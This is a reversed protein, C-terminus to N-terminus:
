NNTAYVLGNWLVTVQQQPNFQKIKEEAKRILENRLTENKYLLMLQNALQEHDTFSAHLVAGAAIEEAYEKDTNIIVPTNMGFSHLLDNSNGSPHLLAYASAWIRKLETEEIHDYIHVDDRYKFAELKSIFEKSKKAQSDLIVLQMNSQLRKKFQSFAKLLNVLGPLFYATRMFLFYERGKTYTAKVNEKEETSIPYYNSDAVAPIVIIKNHASPYQQLLTEKYQHTDTFLASVQQMTQPLKKQTLSFYKKKLYNNQPHGPMWICQPIDAGTNAIGGITLLLDAGIKTFISHMKRNSWTNRPLGPLLNKLIIREGPIDTYAKGNSTKSILFYFEVQPKEKQLLALANTIYRDYEVNFYNSFLM